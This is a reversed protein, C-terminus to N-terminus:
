NATEYMIKSEELVKTILEYAKLTANEDSIKVATNEDLESFVKVLDDYSVERNEYFYKDEAITVEIYKVIDPNGGSVSSDNDATEVDSALSTDESDNFSTSTSQENAAQTDLPENPDNNPTCTTFILGACLILAALKTKKM